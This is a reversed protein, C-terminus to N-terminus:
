CCEPGQPLVQVAVGYLGHRCAAMGVIEAFSVRIARLMIECRVLLKDPLRGMARM